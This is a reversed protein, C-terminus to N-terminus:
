PGEELRAGLDILEQGLTKLREKCATKLSRDEEKDSLADCAALLSQYEDMKTSFADFIKERARMQEVAKREMESRAEPSLTIPAEGPPASPTRGACGAVLLAAGLSLLFPVRTM